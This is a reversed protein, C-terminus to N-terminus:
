RRGPNPYSLPDIPPEGGTAVVVFPRDPTVRAPKKNDARCGDAM